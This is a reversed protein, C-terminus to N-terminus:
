VLYIWVMSKDLISNKATQEESPKTHRCLDTLNDAYEQMIKIVRKDM